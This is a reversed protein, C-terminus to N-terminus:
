RAGENREFTTKCGRDLVGLTIQRGLPNEDGFYAKAFIESVVAVPPSDPRDREEIERGRLIPIEMTSFFGPGTGLIRAGRAPVGSVSIPLQRGARILSAHSLSANRVGPIAALRQRLDAYFTPIEPDQYGAQRANVEFLLVNDRNFGLTISQLNSLTRVFLGAAVLM